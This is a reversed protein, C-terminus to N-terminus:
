PRPAQVVGAYRLLEARHRELLAHARARSANWGLVGGRGNTRALLAGALPRQLEPSLTPLRQLLVPVADDSLKGLYTADVHARSLNTRAILADPNVVNLALTAAFGAIVAGTAFSRTRGRVVTLGLWIFVCGLWLIIGTTYIRLETLGYESRYLAMRQLASAMVVLVLVILSGSLWRVTWLRREAQGALANACLLLPLVLLAVAVLEFFGHRAYEAYTLHIRSEVLGQGGFLYRM